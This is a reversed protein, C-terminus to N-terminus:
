IIIEVEDFYHWLIEIILSSPTMDKDVCLKLVQKYLKKVDYKKVHNNNFYGNLVMGIFEFINLNEKECEIIILEKLCEIKKINEIDKELDM